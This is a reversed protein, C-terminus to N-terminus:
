RFLRQMLIEQLERRGDLIALVSVDRGITQYLIRYPKWHIEKYDFVQIRELEPPIHGREPLVELQSCTEELNDLVHDASTVCDNSCIWNYIALLDAEAEETIRVRYKM